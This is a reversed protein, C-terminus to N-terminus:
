RQKLRKVMSKAVEKKLKSALQKKSQKIAMSMFPLPKIGNESIGRSILFTLSRDTIFRGTTRDRGKIGKTKIWQLIPGPPPFRAGRRRGSIVYKGEPAYTFKIQNKSNIEYRVSDVLRRTAVKKNRILISRANAVVLKAWDEEAKLINPDLQM